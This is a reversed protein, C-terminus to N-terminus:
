CMRASLRAGSAIPIVSVKLIRMAPARVPAEKV